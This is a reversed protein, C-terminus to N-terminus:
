GGTKIGMYRGGGESMEGVSASQSARGQWGKQVSMNLDRGEGSWVLVVKHRIGM